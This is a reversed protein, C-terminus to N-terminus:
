QAINTIMARPFPQKLKLALVRVDSLCGSREM